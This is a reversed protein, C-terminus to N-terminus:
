SHSPEDANLPVAVPNEQDILQKKKWSGSLLRLYVFLCALASYILWIIFAYIISAKPLVVFFYTPLIMLMWVSLSGTILLFLTDGAATLMGNISWRLNEFSLYFVLFILGIRISQKVENLDVASTVASGHEIASPNNFFWNILPDPVVILFLCAIAFYISVLTISSRLVNFVKDHTGAGIFNGTLAIAGKEMGLGFFLFLLLISQVVSAVLIHSPSILTMLYYFLAWAVVELSVFIAPPIGTRICKSMLNPRLKIDTTNYEDRNQKKLFIAILIVVQIIEGITTAIAAGVIGMSPFFGDIGFIFIPDLVVNVLNGLIALWQMIRTKGQGIFFGGIAPILAFTPGAFMLYRFYLLQMETEPSGGYFWKAGWIAMPMFFIYSFLCVWIMQWVPQGLKKFKKAGNFQAVFVESMTVLTVWGLIFAWALTGSQVAANLADTSLYALFIRDVFIMAMMSMFSVMMPFSVRWLEKVNGSKM